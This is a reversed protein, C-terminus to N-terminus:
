RFHFGYSSLTNCQRTALPIYKRMAFQKFVGNIIATKAAWRTHWVEALLLTNVLFDEWVVEYKYQELPPTQRIQPCFPSMKSLLKSTYIKSSKDDNPLWRDLMQPRSPRILDGGGGLACFHWRIRGWISCRNGPETSESVTKSFNGDYAM